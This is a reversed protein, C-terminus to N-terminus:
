FDTSELETKIQPLKLMVTDYKDFEIALRCVIDDTVRSNDYHGQVYIFWEQIEGDAQKRKSQGYLVGSKSTVSLFLGKMKCIDLM